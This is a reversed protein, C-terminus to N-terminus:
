PKKKKIYIYWFKRLGDIIVTQAKIDAVTLPDDIDKMQQQLDKSLQVENIIKAAQNALQTGISFFESIKLKNVIM